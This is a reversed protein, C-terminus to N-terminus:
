DVTIKLDGYVAKVSISSLGLGMHEIPDIEKHHIKLVHPGADISERGGQEIAHPSSRLESLPYEDKISGVRQPSLDHFSAEKLWLEIGKHPRVAEGHAV